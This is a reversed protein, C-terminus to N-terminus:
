PADLLCYPVLAPHFRRSIGFRTSEKAQLAAVAEVAVPGGRRWVQLLTALASARGPAPVDYVPPTARREPDGSGVGMTGIGWDGNCGALRVYRSSLSWAAVLCLHSIIGTTSPVSLIPGCPREPVESGGDSWRYPLVGGSADFFRSLRLLAWDLSALARPPPDAIEALNLGVVPAVRGFPAGVDEAWSLIQRWRLDGPDTLNDGVVVAPPGRFSGATTTGDLVAQGSANALM